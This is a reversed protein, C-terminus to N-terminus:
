QDIAINPDIVRTNNTKPLNFYAYKIYSLATKRGEPFSQRMSNESAVLRLM